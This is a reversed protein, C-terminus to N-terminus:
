NFAVAPVIISLSLIFTYSEELVTFCVSLVSLHVRSLSLISFVKKM